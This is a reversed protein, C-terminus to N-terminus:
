EQEEQEALENSARFKRGRATPLALLIFSVLFGLQITKTISWLAKTEDTKIETVKKVRWLQGFETTGVQDLEAATNLAVQIDGNGIGEPVLVYGIGLKQFPEVLSQGNASVLNAVLKALEPKSGYEPDNNAASLRYATSVSDLKIGNPRVMEARFQQTNTEGDSNIILMRLESGGQAEASFIAPLNRSDRYEVLSSGLVYGLMMPIVSGAFALFLLVKRVGSRTLSDLWLAIPILVALAFVMVSPTPSDYVWDTQKLLISGLGGSSFEIGSVLWLNIAAAIGFGWFLLVSRVNSILSLASFGILGVLCWSFIPHQGIISSVLEPQALGFSITPDALLGLPESLIQFLAYPGAIVLVPLPILILSPVKKPVMALYIIGLLILLVLTSPASAYSVVLLLSSAALWSWNQEISRVSSALGIRAARALSFLLWPLVISFIVGPYNGQSQAESFTPWFAYGLALIVRLSNRATALSLLRWAGFFALSKALLLLWTLALNPAFFTISGIALLIWNFPDSPAALGVGIHQFSAGTNEFLQLWSDSLPLAFGGIAAQGIPFFQYSLAALALMIWLGGGAVFSLRNSASAPQGQEEFSALNTRQEALELALRARSRVQSGSAFLSSLTKASRGHRDRVRARFTIFAWANARLTFGIRDPRKIFMLWFIQFLCIVPLGLWYIFALPMPFQSLRLHNAAKALAYKTSGGLWKKDRKNHISLEAHGVRATPVVVVRFGAHHARIGLEIDQALEPATLSFGGLDAWLNARILMANSSVALVDSMGDHQKQDLEDNVLSFPKFTRTLTLGQQVILKPNDIALQKPSAIGVLPSLELTRVLEALAHTEPACDDHVLWIAVDDLSPYGTLAQKIALASLEAFNADEEINVVAHKSSRSVFEDLIPKVEPASSTDIVLVREARFSQKEIAQLSNQLYSPQDNSVVVAVVRLSM